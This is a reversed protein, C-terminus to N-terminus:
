VQDLKRQVDDDSIERDIKQNGPEDEFLLVQLEKEIEYDAQKDEIHNPTAQVVEQYRFIEPGLGLAVLLRKRQNV